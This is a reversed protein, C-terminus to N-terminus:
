RRVEYGIVADAWSSQEMLSLEGMLDSLAADKKKGSLFDAKEKTAIVIITEYARSLNKPIHVRLKFGSSRLTEDPFIFDQGSPIKNQKVYSNPLLRIVRGDQSVSFVNMNLDGEARVRIRIEDNEQFVPMSSAFPRDARSVEAETIRIDKQKQKVPKVFAKIRCVYVPKGDETKFGDYLVEEKVILGKAFASILDSILQSNYIVSSSSVLVGAAKEVAVRRAENLSLAKAQAPTMDEGLLARGEAVVECIETGPAEASARPLTICLPIISISLLLFLHKWAPILRLNM